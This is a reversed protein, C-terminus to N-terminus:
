HPMSLGALTLAQTIDRVLDIALIRPLSYTVVSDDATVITLEIRLARDILAFSGITVDVIRTPTM